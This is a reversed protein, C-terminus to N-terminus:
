CFANWESDDDSAYCLKLYIANFKWLFFIRGWWKLAESLFWFNEDFLCFRLCLKPKLPIDALNLTSAQKYFNLTDNFDVLLLVFYIDFFQLIFNTFFKSEKKM